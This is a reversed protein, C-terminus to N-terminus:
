TGMAGVELLFGHRLALGDYKERVIRRLTWLEALARAFGLGRPISPAEPVAALAFGGDDVGDHLQAGVAGLEPVADVEVGFGVGGSAGALSQYLGTIDIV